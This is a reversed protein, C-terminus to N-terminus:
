RHERLPLRVELRKRAHDLHLRAHLAHDGHDLLGGERIGPAENLVVARRRRPLFYNPVHQIKRPATLAGRTGEEGRANTEPSCCSLWTPSQWLRRRPKTPPSRRRRIAAAAARDPDRRSQLM